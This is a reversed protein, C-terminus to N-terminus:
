EEESHETQTVENANLLQEPRVPVDEAIFVTQDDGLLLRKIIRDLGGDPIRIVQLSKCNRFAKRALHKPIGEFVIEELKECDAFAQGGISKITAPITVTKIEKSGAFAEKEIKEVTSALTLNKLNVRGRVAGCGITKVGEPIVLDAEDKFVYVLTSGDATYIAGEDLLYRESQLKQLVLSMAEMEFKLDKEQILKLAKLIAKKDKKM